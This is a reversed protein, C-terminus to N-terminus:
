RSPTKRPRGRRPAPTENVATDAAESAEEAVAEAHGRAVLWDAISDPYEVISGAKNTGKRGLLKVQKM